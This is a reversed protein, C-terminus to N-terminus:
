NDIGESTDVSPSIHVDFEDIGDSTDVSSCTVIKLTINSELLM